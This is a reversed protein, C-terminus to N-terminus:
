DSEAAQRIVQNREPLLKKMYGTLVLQNFLQGLPGLPSQFDFKDTMLTFQGQERVGRVPDLTSAQDPILLIRM